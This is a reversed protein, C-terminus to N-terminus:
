LIGPETFPLFLNSIITPFERETVYLKNIRIVNVPAMPAQLYTLEKRISRFERNLSEVGALLGTLSM